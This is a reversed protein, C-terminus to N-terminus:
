KFIACLALQVASLVVGVLNPAWIYTDRVALGYSFWLGGNLASVSSLAPNISASSRERVVKALTSLPAAYYLLLLGNAVYGFVDTAPMSSKVAVWGSLILVTLYTLLTREVVLRQEPSAYAVSSMTFFFGLLAGPMNSM